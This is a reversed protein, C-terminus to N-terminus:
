ATWMCLQIWIWSCPIWGSQNRIIQAPNWNIGQILIMFHVSDTSTGDVANTPARKAWGERIHTTHFGFHHMCPGEPLQLTCMLLQRRRTLLTRACRQCYPYPKRPTLLQNGHGIHKVLWKSLSRALVCLERSVFSRCRRSQRVECIYHFYLFRWILVLLLCFISFRDVTEHIVATVLSKTYFNITSIARATQLPVHVLFGTLFPM